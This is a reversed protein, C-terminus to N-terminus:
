YIFSEQKDGHRGVVTENKPDPLLDLDELALSGLLPPDQKKVVLAKLAGHREKWKILVPFTYYAEIQGGGAVTPAGPIWKQLGLKLCLDEGIVITSAGTDVLMKVTAQRVDETKLLGRHSMGADVANVLTVDTYIFGM